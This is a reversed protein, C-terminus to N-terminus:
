LDITIYRYYYRYNYSSIRKIIANTESIMSNFYWKIEFNHNVIYITHHNLIILHIHSNQTSADFIVNLM